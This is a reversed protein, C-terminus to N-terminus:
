ISSSRGCALCVLSTPGLQRYREPVIGCHPCPHAGAVYAPPPEIPPPLAPGPDVTADRVMISIKAATVDFWIRRPGYAWNPPLPRIDGRRVSGDASIPFHEVIANPTTTIDWWWPLTGAALYGRQPTAFLWIVIQPAIADDYRHHALHWGYQIFFREPTLTADCGENRELMYHLVQLSGSELPVRAGGIVAMAQDFPSTM